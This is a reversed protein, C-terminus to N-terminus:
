VLAVTDGYNSDTVGRISNVEAPGIFGQAAVYRKGRLQM